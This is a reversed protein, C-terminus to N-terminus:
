GSSYFKLEHDLEIGFHNKMIDTAQKASELKVVKLIRDTLPNLREKSTFNGNQICKM